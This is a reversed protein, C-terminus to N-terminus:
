RPIWRRNITCVTMFIQTGSLQLNAKVRQTIMLNELAGNQTERM